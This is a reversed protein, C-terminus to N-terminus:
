YRYPRGLNEVFKRRMIQTPFDVTFVYERSVITGLLSVDPPLMHNRMYGWILVHDRSWKMQIHSVCHFDGLNAM